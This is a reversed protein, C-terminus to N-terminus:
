VSSGRRCGTASFTSERSRSSALLSERPDMELGEGHNLNGIQRLASLERDALRQLLKLKRSHIRKGAAARLNKGVPYARNNAIVLNVAVLPQLRRAQGMLQSQAGIRGHQVTMHLIVFVPNVM